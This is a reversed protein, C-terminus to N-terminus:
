IPKMASLPLRMTEQISSFIIRLKSQIQGMRLISATQLTDQITNGYIRGGSIEGRVMIGKGSGKIHEILFDDSAGTIYVGEDQDNRQMGALGLTIQLNRVISHKADQVTIARQPHVMLRLEADWGSGELTINDGRIYLSDHLLYVGKALYVKGGGLERAHDMAAQIAATDDTEGDGVAGFDVAQLITSGPQEFDPTATSSQTFAIQGTPAVEKHSNAMGQDASQIASPNVTGLFWRISFLVLFLMLLLLLLNRKPSAM